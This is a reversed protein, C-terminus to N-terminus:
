SLIEKDNEEFQGKSWNFYSTAGLSLFIYKHHNELIKIMKQVLFM